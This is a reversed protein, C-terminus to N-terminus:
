SVDFVVNNLVVTTSSNADGSIAAQQFGSFTIGQFEITDLPLAHSLILAQVVGGSLTCNGDVTGADGCTFVSRPFVPTLSENTALSFITNPCLRYIYQNQAKTKGSVALDAAALIDSNLDAIAVYGTSGDSCTTVKSSAAQSSPVLSLAFLLSLLQKLCRRYIRM